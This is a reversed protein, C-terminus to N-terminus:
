RVSHGRGSPSLVITAPATEYYIEYSLLAAPALSAQRNHRYPARAVFVRWEERPNRLKMFPGTRLISIATGLPSVSNRARKPCEVTPIAIPEGSPWRSRTFSVSHRM